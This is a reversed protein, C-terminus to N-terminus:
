RREVVEKVGVEAGPLCKKELISGAACGGAADEVRNGLQLSGNISIEGLVMVAGFREDPGFGGLGNQGFEVV